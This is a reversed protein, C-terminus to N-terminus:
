IIGWLLEQCLDTRQELLSLLSIFPIHNLWLQSKAIEGDGLAAQLASMPIAGQIPGVQQFAARGAGACM